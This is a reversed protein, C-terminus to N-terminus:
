TLYSIFSRASSAFTPDSTPALPQKKAMRFCSADVQTSLIDESKKIGITPPNAALDLMCKKWEETKDNPMTYTGMLIM